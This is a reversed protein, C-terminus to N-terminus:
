RAVPAPAASSERVVLEPQFLVQRPSAPGSNGIADMLMRAATRGMDYAPLRLSTLPPSLMAAFDVDDYGVLAFEDPVKIGLTAFRRLVGLAVLDNACVVGTPRPSAKLIQDAIAEGERATSTSTTFELVSSAWDLGRARVADQVGSRREGWSRRSVPGNVFGILEHGLEFLHNAALEGGRRENISVSSYMGTDSVSGILVTPTGTNSLRRLEQEDQVTAALLGEPRREDLTALFRAEKAPSENSSGVMLVFGAETVISEIGSVVEGWFPNSLDFVVVGVALSRGGRLQRASGNPVFSLEAMARAVRTQTEAAVLHPRNLVNSVTGLSVGARAAVDRM